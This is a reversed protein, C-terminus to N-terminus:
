RGEAHISRMFLAVDDAAIGRHIRCDGIAHPLILTVLGNDTKKDSVLAVPLESGSLLGGWDLKRDGAQGLQDIRVPLGLAEFLGVVERAEDEALMGHEVAYRCALVTGVSVAEGHVVSGDYGALSELAHGFTHGLNLLARKGKEREDGAIIGAKIRCCCAITEAMLDHECGCLRDVSGVLRSFFARGDLVATKVIEALGAGFERKPLTDLFVPDILVLEPQHITGLLNKGRPVNLGNKGGVSSDVQALLTTPIMVLRVGRFLCAAMFGSLDGTVGGGVAVVVSGRDLDMETARLLMSQFQELSKDHEGPEVWLYRWKGEVTGSAPFGAIRALNADVAALYGASPLREEVVSRWNRCLGPEFLIDYRHNRREVDVEITLM